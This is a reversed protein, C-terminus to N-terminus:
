RLAASAASKLSRGNAQRNRMASRRLEDIAKAPRSCHIAFLNTTIEDDPLGETHRSVLQGDDDIVRICSDGTDHAAVIEYTRCRSLKQEVAGSDPRRRAEDVNRKHHTRIAPSEGFTM